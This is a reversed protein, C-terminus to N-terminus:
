AWMEDWMGIWCWRVLGVDGSSNEKLDPHIRGWQVIGVPHMWRMIGRDHTRDGGARRILVHGHLYIGRYYSESLLATCNAVGQYATHM